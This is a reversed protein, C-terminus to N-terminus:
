ARSLRVGMTRLSYRRERSLTTDPDKQLELWVHLAPSGSSESLINIHGHRSKFEVLKTYMTLWHDESPVIWEGTNEPKEMYEICRELFADFYPAYDYEHVRDLAEMPPDVLQELERLEVPFAWNIIEMPDTGSMIHRIMDASLLSRGLKKKNRNHKARGAELYEQRCLEVSKSVIIEQIESPLVDWLSTAM